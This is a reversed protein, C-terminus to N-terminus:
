EIKSVERENKLHAPCVDVLEDKDFNFCVMKDLKCVRNVTLYAVKQSHPCTM